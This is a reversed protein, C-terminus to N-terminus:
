AHTDTWVFATGIRTLQLHDVVEIWTDLSINFWNIANITRHKSRSLMVEFPILL